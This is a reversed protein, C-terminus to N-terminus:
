LDCWCIFIRYIKKNVQVGFSKIEVSIIKHTKRLECLKDNYSRTETEMRSFELFIPFNKM